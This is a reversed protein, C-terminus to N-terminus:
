LATFTNVGNGEVFMVSSRSCALGEMRPIYLYIVCSWNGLQQPGFPFLCLHVDLHEVLLSATHKPVHLVSHNIKQPPPSLVCIDSFAM